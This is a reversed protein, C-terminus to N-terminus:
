RICNVQPHYNFATLKLSPMLPPHIEFDIDSYLCTPVTKLNCKTLMLRRLKMCLVSSLVFYKENPISRRLLTHDM